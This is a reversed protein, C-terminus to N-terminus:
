TAHDSVGALWGELGQTERSWWAEPSRDTVIALLKGIGVLVGCGRNRWGLERLFGCPVTQKEIPKRIARSLNTTKGPSRLHSKTHANLTQNTQSESALRRRTGTLLCAICRYSRTQVASETSSMRASAPQKKEGDTLHRDHYRRGASSSWNEGM